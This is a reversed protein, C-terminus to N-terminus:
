MRDTSGRWPKGADDHITASAAGKGVIVMLTPDRHKLFWEFVM